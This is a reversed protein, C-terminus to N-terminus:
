GNSRSSPPKAASVTVVDIELLPATMQFDVNVTQDLSVIVNQQSVTTYGVYSATVQHVGVPVFAILYEGNGDTVSGLESNEVVINVGALPHVNEDTVKGGIRGIGAALCVVSPFSILLIVKRFRVM